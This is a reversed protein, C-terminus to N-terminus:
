ATPGPQRENAEIWRGINRLTGRHPVQSERLGLLIEIEAGLFSGVILAAVGAPTLGMRQLVGQAFADEVVGALLEHWGSIAERLTAALEPDSYSQGWLEHLIRVYGSHLDEDLYDCARQWKVSLLEPGAYLAQQRELLRANESELVVLLLQRKSGFHYHIQSLPVGADDAVARTSVAAYGSRLLCARAAALIRDETSPGPDAAVAARKM